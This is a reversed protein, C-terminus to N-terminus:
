FGLGSRRGGMFAPGRFFTLVEILSFYFLPLSCIVELEEQTYKLFYLTYTHMRHLASSSLILRTHHAKLTFLHISACHSVYGVYIYVCSVCIVRDVFNDSPAFACDHRKISALTDTHLTM